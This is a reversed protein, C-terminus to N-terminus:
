DTVSASREAAYVIKSKGAERVQFTFDPCESTLLDAYGKARDVDPILTAFVLGVGVSGNALNMAGYHKDEKHKGYIMYNM